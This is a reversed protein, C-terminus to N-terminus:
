EPREKQTHHPFWCKWAFALLAGWRTFFRVTWVRLDWHHGHAKCLSRLFTIHVHSRRLGQRPPLSPQTSFNQQCLYCLALHVQLFPAPLSQSFVLIFPSSFVFLFFFFLEPTRWNSKIDKSSNCSPDQLDLTYLIDSLVCGQGLLRLRSNVCHIGSEACYCFGAGSGSSRVCSLAMFCCGLKGRKNSSKSLFALGYPKSEVLYWQWLAKM